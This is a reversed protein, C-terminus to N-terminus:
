MKGITEYLKFEKGAAGTIMNGKIIRAKMILAMILIIRMMLMATTMIVIQLLSSAPNKYLSM